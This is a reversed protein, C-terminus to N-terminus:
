PLTELSVTHEKVITSTETLTVFNYPLPSALDTDTESVQPWYNLPCFPSGVSSYHVGDRVIQVGRHIHGFFVGRIRDRHRRLTAHLEDGDKMDVRDRFWDSDLDLPCHHLFVTIKASGSLHQELFALQGPPLKGGAGVEEHPGQSHLVVFREPGVEFAYSVVPENEDFVSTKKGMELSLVGAPNDHNGVAYYVPVGLRSFQERALRYSEAVGLNAGSGTAVDGTHMVFDPQTPLGEIADLLATLSDYPRRGFAEYSPDPGLHTDSIHVFYVPRTM